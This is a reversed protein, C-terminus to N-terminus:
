RVSTKFEGEAFALFYPWNPNPTHGASHQRFVLDGDLIATEIPPFVHTGLDKKGLLRYVPGAGVGALFTGKADVWADSHGIDIAPDVLNGASLFVPRPACLAILEHSDVPLDSWKLPGAYKLFNGAMWHYESEGTVNEVLEGFNRRHLKAGGEGSSSVFAIAIRPDYAMSVLAAKGYRSHGQIAVRKADVNKDTEFYDMARDAGWAWARLAGWDDTKRPQGKNVLGIIGKRLGAGNDAQISGPNLEAFGWGKALAQAQWSPGPESGQQSAAVAPPGGSGRAPPGGFVMIVPVPGTSDAPTSLSLQIDVTIEADASNDVQGVLTKTIIPVDGVHEDATNTLEWKVKPVDNPVRGYVERDFDEVIEPRRRDWWMKASTVKKGNKMKLPDPLDPYPNAKSEDYNASGLVRANVGPRLSTIHLQEMMQAHDEKAAQQLAAQPANQFGQSAIHILALVWFAGQIIISILRNRM